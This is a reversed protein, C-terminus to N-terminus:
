PDIFRTLHYDANGFLTDIMTLRKFYHAVDLENTVGMGGHLQVAEQGLKRGSTGIHYKLASLAKSAAEGETEMQMAAMYLLSKSQEYMMFMDVMRHQLAQFSGIPVGFQVRSKTYDVTKKYLMEMIGVAEACVALSAMDLAARIAPLAASEEGLLCDAGVDVNKLQIDSARLGDITSYNRRELGSSGADLLFLSVGEEDGSAGSTRASVLLLDAAPGNFVVAKHGNLVYSGGVRKATTTVDTLDFRTKPEAFAFAAQSTGEIIGPLYTHRQEATAARALVGGALVITALYPEVVLARGFQEMIVMLEVPTGDYGGDEERFPIATWGLEAFLRWYDASFGLDSSVLEQRTEFDYDNQVFKDISEQLLSQEESLSFDM